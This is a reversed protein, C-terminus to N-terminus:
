PRLEIGSKKELNSTWFLDGSRSTLTLKVTREQLLLQEPNLQVEITTQLTTYKPFSMSMLCHNIHIDYLNTCNKGTLTAYLYWSAGPCSLKGQEFYFLSSLNVFM